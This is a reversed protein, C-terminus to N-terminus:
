LFEIQSGKKIDLSATGGYGPGSKTLVRGGSTRINTSVVYGAFPAFELNKPIPGYYVQSLSSSTCLVIALTLCFYMCSRSHM